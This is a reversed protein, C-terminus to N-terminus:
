SESHFWGYKLVDHIVSGILIAVGIYSVHIPNTAFTNKYPFLDNTPFGSNAWLWVGYGSIAIGVIVGLITVIKPASEM